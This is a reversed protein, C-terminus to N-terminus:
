DQGLDNVPVESYKVDPDADLVIVTDNDLTGTVMRVVSPALNTEPSIRNITIGVLDGDHYVGSLSNSSKGQFVINYEIIVTAWPENIAEANDELVNEAYFTLGGTLGLEKSMTFSSPSDCDIWIGTPYKVSYTRSWPKLVSYKRYSPYRSILAKSSPALGDRDICSHILGDGTVNYLSDQQAVAQDLINAKPTVTIKVSNVRFKDYQLAWLRFEANGLYFANSASTPDMNYGSYIYNSTLLGQTPSITLANKTKLFYTDMNKKAKAKHEKTVMRKAKAMSPKKGGKAWKKGVM